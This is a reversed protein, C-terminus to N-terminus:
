RPAHRCRCSRVSAACWNPRRGACCGPSSSNPCRTPCRLSRARPDDGSRRGARGRDSVARRPPARSPRPLRASRRPAVALAHDDQEPRDGAPPLHGPEAAGEGPRAHGGAGLQDVGGRRRALLNAAPVAVPRRRRGRARNGPVAGVVGRAAGHQAGAAADAVQGVRGQLGKPPEPERLQALLRGIERLAETSQAGMGLAVRLPTGFLNALVPVDYGRWEDRPQEILLAPGGARLVRDSLETIELKPSVPTRVRLLENRAELLTLFERLDAYKM